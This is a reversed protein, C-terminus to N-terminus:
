LGKSEFYERISKALNYSLFLIDELSKFQKSSISLRESGRLAIRLNDELVKGGNYVIGGNCVIEMDSGAELHAYDGFSSKKILESIEKGTTTTKM